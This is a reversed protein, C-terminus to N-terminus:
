RAIGRKWVSNRHEPTLKMLEYHPAMGRHIPGNVLKILGRDRLRRLVNKVTAPTSRARHALAERTTKHTAIRTDTRASEALAILVTLELHTLDSPANDLVEGVIRGSM